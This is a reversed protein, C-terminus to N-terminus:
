LNEQGSEIPVPFGRSQQITASEFRLLPMWKQQFRELALHSTIPITRELKENDRSKERFGTEV